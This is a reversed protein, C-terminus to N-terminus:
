SPTSGPSLASSSHTEPSHASRHQHVPLRRRLQPGNRTSRRRPGSCASSMATGPPSRSRANRTGAKQALAHFADADQLMVTTGSGPDIAGFTMADRHSGIMVISDPQASGAMDGFVIWITKVQREFQSHVHVTENGGFRQVFEFMPHWSQPVVKGRENRCAADAGHSKRSASSPFRQTRFITGAEQARRRGAASPRGADSRRASVDHLRAAVHRGHARGHQCEQLQRRPWMAGGGYGTTSPEMFM